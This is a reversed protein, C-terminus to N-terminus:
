ALKSQVSEVVGREQLACAWRVIHKMRAQELAHHFLPPCCLPGRVEPKQDKRFLIYFAAAFGYVTLLLLFIFWKTQM